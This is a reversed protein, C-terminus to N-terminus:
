RAEGAADAQCREYSEITEPAWSLRGGVVRHPDPFEGAHWRAIITDPSLNRELAVRELPWLVPPVFELELVPGDPTTIIM